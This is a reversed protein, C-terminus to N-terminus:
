GPLGAGKTTIRWHGILPMYTAYYWGETGVVEVFAAVHLSRILSHGALVLIRLRCPPWVAQSVMSLGSPAAGVKTLAVTYLSFRRGGPM